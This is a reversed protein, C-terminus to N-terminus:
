HGRNFNPMVLSYSTSRGGEANKVLIGQDILNLIDRYATDQSCKTMKAWKSSTLKGDFGDLLRNIIKRQRDNLSVEKLVEWFRAKEIIVDLTSLANEVARGLCGFFWEMWSTIDLEGKQTQELIVYYMKREIQIQASLSYFRHSSKESRALMLDVIARGIRGNGDDFPHITVFWLHALAAMLVPDMTTESNLWNLFREMEFDVLDASLAEFHLTERGMQGSVVQVSGTRWAGVNIKMFGSRGNPFLTAHWNLLREKTLPQDFKQTADLIVEVVGEINRDVVDLAAREMGLHRAISSRVLSQDLIEGEIESSKVVDQTLTQLVTEDRLQFGISEMGGILCGQQHRLQILLTTLREKDWQFDPWNEQQYIYM